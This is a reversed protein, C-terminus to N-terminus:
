PWAPELVPKEKFLWLHARFIHDGSPKENMEMQIGEALSLPLPPRLASKHSGLVSQPSSYSGLPAALGRQVFDM